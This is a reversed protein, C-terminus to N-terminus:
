GVSEPERRLLQEVEHRTLRDPARSGSLPMEDIVGTRMRTKRRPVKSNPDVVAVTDAAIIEAPKLNHMVAPSHTNAIIQALNQAPDPESTLDTCSVRLLEILGKVRAEHIGNEPEEFCLVGRRQPDHLVALLALIRLTGDSLVRSSFRMGDRMTVFLRFQRAADDRTVDLDQVGPILSVLDERVDTLAGNPNDRTATDARIRALVAALNSGDPMLQKDPSLIDSPAREAAPDLQLYMLSSLEKRLAFLHPFEDATRITSLATAEAEGLPLSRKPGASGDRIYIRRIKGEDKTTLFGTPKKSVFAHREISPRDKRAARQLLSDHKGLIRRATESAVHLRESGMASKVKREIAVEYRIRTTSLRKEQAYPDKVVPDLLVEVAFTMRDTLRGDASARFLEHPEGRLDQLATRIDMESLRSIFRLADFLNSKGAANPGVVVSFPRLDLGFSEFSKFGDIEIRTLM